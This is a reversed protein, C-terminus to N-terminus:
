VCLLAARVEEDDRLKTMHKVLAETFPISEPRGQGGVTKRKKSGTFTRLRERQQWWTAITSDPADFVSAVTSRSEDADLMDLANLKEELTCMKRRRKPPPSFMPTPAAPSSPFYGRL